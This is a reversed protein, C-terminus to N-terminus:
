TFPSGAVAIFPLHLQRKKKIKKFAVTPLVCGQNILTYNYRQKFRLDSSFTPTLISLPHSGCARKPLFWKRFRSDDYKM